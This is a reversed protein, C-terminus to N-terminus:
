SRTWPEPAFRLGKLCSLAALRAEVSCDPQIVVDVVHVEQELQLGERAPEVVQWVFLQVEEPADLGDGFLEHLSIVVYWAGLVINVEPAVHGSLKSPALFNDGEVPM